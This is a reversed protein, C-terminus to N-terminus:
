FLPYPHQQGKPPPGYEKTFGNVQSSDFSISYFNDFDPVTYFDAWEFETNPDDKMVLRLADVWERRDLTHNEEKQDEDNLADGSTDYLLTFGVQYGNNPYFKLDCLGVFYTRADQVFSVPHCHKEVFEHEPFVYWEFGLWNIVPLLFCTIATVAFVTIMPLVQELPHRIFRFLLIVLSLGGYCCCLYSFTDSWREPWFFFVIVILLIPNVLLFGMWVPKRLQSFQRSQWFTRDMLELGLM